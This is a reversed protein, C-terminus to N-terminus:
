ARRVASLGTSHSLLHKLRVAEPVVRALAPPLLAALPTEYGKRAIGERMYVHLLLATM